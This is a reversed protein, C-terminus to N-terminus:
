RFVPSTGRPATKCGAPHDSGALRIYSDSSLTPTRVRKSSFPSDGIMIRPQRHVSPPVQSEGNWLITGGGRLRAASVCPQMM